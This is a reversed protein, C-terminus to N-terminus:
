YALGYKERFYEDRVQELDYDGKVIGILSETLSSMVTNLPIFRGIQKLNQTMSVEHGDKDNQLYKDFDNNLEDVSALELNGLM